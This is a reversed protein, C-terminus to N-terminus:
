CGCLRYREASYRDEPCQRQSLQGEAEEVKKVTTIEGNVVAKYEYYTNDSDKVKTGAKSSLVYVIDDSSASVDSIFVM